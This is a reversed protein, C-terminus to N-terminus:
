EMLALVEKLIFSNIKDFSNTNVLPAEIVHRKVYKHSDILKGTDSAITADKPEGDENKFRLRIHKYEKKNRTVENRVQRVATLVATQMKKEPRLEITRVREKIDGKQDWVAGENAFNLLQISSLTGGKLDKEFESSPHGQFEISHVLHVMLPKGRPTKAGNINPILYKSPFQKKCARVLHKIYDSISSAHLGSGYVTEIVCLYYNDGLVPDITIAVHASYDGGHGPPKSHVVRSNNEPDTSVADPAFPDSRNVLLIIKDKILQLDSLYLKVSKDSTGKKVIQDGSDFLQRIDGYIDRLPKPDTDFFAENGEARSLGVASIKLDYFTATRHM